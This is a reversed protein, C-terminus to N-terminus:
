CHQQETAPSSEQVKTSPMMKGLVVSTTLVLSIRLGKCRYFRHTRAHDARMNKYLHQQQFGKLEGQYETGANQGQSIARYSQAPRIVVVYKCCSCSLSATRSAPIFECSRADAIGTLRGHFQPYHFPSPTTLIAYEYATCSIPRVLTQPLYYGPYAHRRQCVCFSWYGM